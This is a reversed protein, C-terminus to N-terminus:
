IYVYEIQIKFWGEQKRMRIIYLPLAIALSLYCFEGKRYCLIIMSILNAYVPPLDSPRRSPRMGAHSHHLAARQRQRGAERDRDRERERGSPLMGANRHHRWAGQVLLHLGPDDQVQFLSHSFSLALSARERDAHFMTGELMLRLTGERGAGKCFLCVGQAAMGVVSGENYPVVSGGNYPHCRFHGGATKAAFSLLGQSFALQAPSYEALFAPTHPM